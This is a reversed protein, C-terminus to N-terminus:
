GVRLKWMSIRYIRDGIGYQNQKKKEIRVVEEKTWAKIV